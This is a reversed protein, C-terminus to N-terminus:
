VPLTPQELYFKSTIFSGCEERCRRPDSPLPLESLCYCTPVIRPKNEADVTNDVSRIRLNDCRLIPEPLICNECIHPSTVRPKYVDACCFLYGRLSELYECEKPLERTLSGAHSHDLTINKRNNLNSHELQAKLQRFAYRLLRQKDTESPFSERPTYSRLKSLLLYPFAVRVTSTATTDGDPVVSFAFYIETPKGAEIGISRYELGQVQFYRSTSM